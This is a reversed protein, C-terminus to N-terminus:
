PKKRKPRRAQWWMLPGTMTLIMLALGEALLLIRGPSGMATGSHLPLWTLWPAPNSEATM